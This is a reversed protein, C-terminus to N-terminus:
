RDVTMLTQASLADSIVQGRMNPSGQELTLSVIPKDADVHIAFFFEGPLVWFEYGETELSKIFNAKQEELLVKAYGAGKTKGLLTFFRMNVQKQDTESGVPVVVVGSKGSAVLREFEAKEAPNKDLKLLAVDSPVGLDIPRSNLGIWACHRTTISREPGRRLEEEADFKKFREEINKFLLMGKCAVVSALKLEAEEKTKATRLLEILSRLPDGMTLNPIEKNFYGEVIKLIGLRVPEKDDEPLLYMLGSQEMVGKTEEVILAQLM